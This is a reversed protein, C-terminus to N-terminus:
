LTYKLMTEGQHKSISKFKIDRNNILSIAIDNDLYKDAFLFKGTIPQFYIANYYTSINESKMLEIIKNKM